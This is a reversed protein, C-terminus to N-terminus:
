YPDPTKIEGYTALLRDAEQALINRPIPKDFQIMFLDGVNRVIKGTINQLASRNGFYLHFPFSQKPKIPLNPSAKFKLGSESIDIVDFVGVPTELTPRDTPPYKMRFHKRDEATM